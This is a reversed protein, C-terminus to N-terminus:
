SLGGCGVGARFPRNPFVAIFKLGNLEPAAVQVMFVQSKPPIDDLVAVSEPPSFEVYFGYESWRGATHGVLINLLESLLALNDPHQSDSLGLYAGVFGALNAAAGSDANLYLRGILPAEGFVESTFDVKVLPGTELPPLAEALEEAKCTEIHLGPMKSLTESVQRSFVEAFVQYM